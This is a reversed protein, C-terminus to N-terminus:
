EEKEKERERYKMMVTKDWKAKGMLGEDIVNARVVVRIM